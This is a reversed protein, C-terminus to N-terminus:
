LFRAKTMRPRLLGFATAFVGPDMGRGSPLAVATCMCNAIVQDTEERMLRVAHIRLDPGLIVFSLTHVSDGQNWGEEKEAM